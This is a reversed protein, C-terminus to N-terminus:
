QSLFRNYFSTTFSLCFFMLLLRRNFPQTIRQIVCMMIERISDAVSMLSLDSTSILLLFAIIVYKKIQVCDSKAFNGVAVYQRIFSDYSCVPTTMVCEFDCNRRRRKRASPLDGILFCFNWSGVCYSMSIPMWKFTILVIRLTVDAM